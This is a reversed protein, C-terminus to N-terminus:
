LLLLLLLLLSLLLLCYCCTVAVHVVLLLLTSRRRLMSGLPYSQLLRRTINRREMSALLMAGQQTYPHVGAGTLVGGHLNLCNNSREYALNKDLLDFARRIAEDRLHAAHVPSGATLHNLHEVSNRRRITSRAHPPVPPLTRLADSDDRRLSLRRTDVFPSPWM